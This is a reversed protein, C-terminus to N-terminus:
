AFIDTCTNPPSRRDQEQLRVFFLIRHSRSSPEWSAGAWALGALFRLWGAGAQVGPGDAWACCALLRLWCAWALSGLGDAWACCGLLRLWGASALMGPGAAWARCALFRLWGAWALMGPGDAWARSALLGLWVAGCSKFWIRKFKLPAQSRLVRLASL